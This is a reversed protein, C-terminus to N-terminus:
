RKLNQKVWRVARAKTLFTNVMRGDVIVRWYIYWRRKTDYRSNGRWDRYRGRPNISARSRTIQIVPM